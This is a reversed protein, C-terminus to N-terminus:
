WPSFGKAEQNMSRSQRSSPLTGEELPSTRESGSALINRASNYDRDIELGCVCRHTRARLTKPVQKGCNSCRQTTGRPEVRAFRIGAREAKYEIFQLFRGWSADMMNRPNHSKGVLGRIDLDEVAIFGYRSVYYHSLKHLFDDRQNVIKEHLIALKLKQKERNKSGKTTRSLKRQEDALKSLSKGLFKPHDIHTGDSDYVFNKIGVDIGVSPRTTPKDPSESDTRRDEVVLFAYWKGSAYRKVCIQKVEGSIERHIRISIDGIKSLRLKDLRNTTRIVKFGSQNYVFTKFRKGNKFRM